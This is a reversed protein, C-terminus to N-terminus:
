SGIALSNRENVTVPDGKSLVGLMLGNSACSLTPALRHSPSYGRRGGRMRMGSLVSAAQGTHGEPSGGRTRTGSSRSGGRRGRPHLAEGRACESPLKHLISDALGARAHPSFIICSPVWPENGVAVCAACM